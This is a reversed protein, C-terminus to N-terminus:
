QCLGRCGHINAVYDVKLWGPKPGDETSSVRGCQVCGEKVLVHMLHKVETGNMTEKNLGEPFVCYGNTGLSIRVCHIHDGNKFTRKNSLKAKLERYTQPLHRGNFFVSCLGDTTCEAKQEASVAMPTLLAAISLAFQPRM